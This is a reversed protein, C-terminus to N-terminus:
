VKVVRGCWYRTLFVPPLFKPLCIKVRRVEPVWLPILRTGSVRYQTRVHPADRAWEWNTVLWDFSVTWFSFFFRQQTQFDWVVLVVSQIRDAGFSWMRWGYLYIKRGWVALSIFLVMPSFGLHVKSRCGLVSAGFM